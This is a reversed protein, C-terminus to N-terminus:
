RHSEAAIGTVVSDVVSTLWADDLPEGLMSRALLAGFLLDIAVGPDARASLEGAAIGRELVTRVSAMRPGFVRERFLALLAPDRHAEGLLSGLIALSGPTAVAAATHRLMELLAARTTAPLDPEPGAGLELLAATVLEAKSRYRRYVTPRGVGAAAAVAEISMAQYGQEGLLRFAAEIIARDATSSRPRGRKM